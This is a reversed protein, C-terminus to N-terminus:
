VAVAFCHCSSSSLWINNYLLHSVLFAFFLWTKMKKEALFPTWPIGTELTEQFIAKGITQGVAPSYFFFKPIRDQFLYM